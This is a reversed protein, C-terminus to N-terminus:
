GTPTVLIRTNGDTGQNSSPKWAIANNLPLEGIEGRKFSEEARAVKFIEKLFPKKAANEPHEKDDWWPDLLEFAVAELHKISLGLKQISPHQHQPPELIM